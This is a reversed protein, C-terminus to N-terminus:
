LDMMLKGWGCLSRVSIHFGLAISALESDWSAVSKGTQDHFILLDNMRLYWCPSIYLDTLFPKNFSPRITTKLKIHINKPSEQRPLCRMTQCLTSSKALSWSWKVVLFCIIKSPCCATKQQAMNTPIHKEFNPWKSAHIYGTGTGWLQIGQCRDGAPSQTVWIIHIYIYYTYIYINISIIIVVESRGWQLRM